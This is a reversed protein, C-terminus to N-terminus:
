ELGGSRRFFVVSFLVVLFVAICMYVVEAVSSAFSTRNLNLSQTLLLPYTAVYIDSRNKIRSVVALSSGILLFIPIIGMSGFNALAEAVPNYGYGIPAARNPDYFDHVLQAFNSNITQPKDGPYLARPLVGPLAAVYSAGYKKDTPFEVQYLLTMYPGVFENNQPLLWDISYNREIWAKADSTTMYGSNIESIVWRTQAFLALCCYTAILGCIIQPSMRVTRRKYITRAAIYIVVAYVAYRRDGIAFIILIWLVLNIITIANLKRTGAGIFSMVSLGAFVFAQYPLAGRSESALSFRMSRDTSLLTGLGGLRLSDLYFMALGLLFVLFASYFLAHPNHVKFSAKIQRDKVILAALVLGVSAGLSFLGARLYTLEDFAIPYLNSANHDGYFSVGAQFLVLGNYLAFILSFAGLLDIIGNNKFRIHITVSCLGICMLSVLLILVRNDTIFLLSAVVASAVFLVTCCLTYLYNTRYYEPM